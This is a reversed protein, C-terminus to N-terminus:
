LTKLVEKGARTLAGHRDLLGHESQWTGNAWKVEKLCWLAIAHVNARRSIAAWERVSTSERWREWHGRFPAPSLIWPGPLRLVREVERRRVRNPNFARLFATPLQEHYADDFRRDWWLNQWANGVASLGM